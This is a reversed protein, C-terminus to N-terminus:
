NAETFGIFVPDKPHGNEDIGFHNLIAYKTEIWNGKCYNWMQEMRADSMGTVPAKFNDGETVECTATMGNETRELGIFRYKSGM